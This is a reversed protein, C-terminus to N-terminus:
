LAGEETVRCLRNIEEVVKSASKNIFFHGGDFEKYTIERGAIMDWSRIGKVTTADDRGYFVSINCPFPIPPQSPNYDELALYDARLIPLFLNCLDKNDFVERPTGDLSLIHEIFEKDPAHSVPSAVINAYPPIGGSFIAYSPKPWGHNIIQLILAYVLTSGMSHGFVMYPGCNIVSRISTLSNLIMQDITAALPEEHRVGRGPLEITHLNIKDSLYPKWATYARSDGGAYPFCLLKIKNM